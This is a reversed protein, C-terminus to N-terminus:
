NDLNHINPFDSRITLTTKGVRIVAVAPTWPDDGSDDFPYPSRTEFDIACTLKAPARMRRRAGRRYRDRTKRSAYSM